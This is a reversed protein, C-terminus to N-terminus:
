GHNSIRPMGPEPMQAVNSGDDNPRLSDTRQRGDLAPVSVQAGVAQIQKSWQYVPRGTLTLVRQELELCDQSVADGVLITMRSSTITRTHHM